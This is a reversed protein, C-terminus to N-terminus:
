LWKLLLILIIIAIGLLNYQMRKRNLKKDANKDMAWSKYKGSESNRPM